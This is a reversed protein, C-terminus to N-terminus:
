NRVHATTTTRPRDIGNKPSRKRAQAITETRPRGNEFTFVRDNDNDHDTPYTPIPHCQTSVPFRRRVVRQRQEDNPQWTVRLSTAVPSGNDEHRRTHEQQQHCPTDRRHHRLSPATPLCHVPTTFSPPPPTLFLIIPQHHGFRADSFESV